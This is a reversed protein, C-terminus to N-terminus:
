AYIVLCYNERNFCSKEATYNDLDTSSSLNLLLRLLAHTCVFKCLSMATRRPPPRIAAHEISMARLNEKGCRAGEGFERIKVVVDRRKHEGFQRIIKEGVRISSCRDSGLFLSLYVRCGFVPLTM